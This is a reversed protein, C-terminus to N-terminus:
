TRCNLITDDSVIKSCIVALQVVLMAARFNDVAGEGRGVGGVIACPHTINSPTMGCYNVTREIAGSAASHEVLLAAWRHSVTREASVLGVVAIVEIPAPHEVKRPATWGYNVTCEPVIM